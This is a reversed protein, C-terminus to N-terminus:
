RLPRIVKIKKEAVLLLSTRTRRKILIRRYTTILSKRAKVKITKPVRLLLSM